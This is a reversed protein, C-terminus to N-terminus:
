GRHPLGGPHVDGAAAGCGRASGEGANIPPTRGISTMCRLLQHPFLLHLADAPLNKVLRRSWGDDDRDGGAMGYAHGVLLDVLPAYLMKHVPPQTPPREQHLASESLTVLTPTAPALLGCVTAARQVDRVVEAQTRRCRETRGDPEDELFFAFLNSQNRVAIIPEADTFYLEAGSDRTGAPAPVGFSPSAQLGGDRLMRMKTATEADFDIYNGYGWEAYLRALSRNVDGMVGIPLTSPLALMSAAAAVRRPVAKVRLGFLIRAGPQM